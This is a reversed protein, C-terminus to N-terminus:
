PMADLCAQLHPGSAFDNFGGAFLSPDRTGPLADMFVQATSAAGDETKSVVSLSRLESGSEALLNIVERDLGSYGIVLLNLAGLASLRERLFAVHSGPCQLEDDAGVPVSLAPYYLRPPGNDFRLREIEAVADVGQQDSRRFVIEDALEFDAGLAQFTRAFTPRDDTVISPLGLSVVLRAWNVSGHLKVLSWGRGEEVYADMSDLPSRIALTRDLLTDYNLTVFIVEPLELTANVLRHYNDPNDTFRTSDSIAHFLHQLYLPVSVYQRRRDPTRADRLRERLFAELAVGNATHFRIDAAAAQAYPYQALISSFPEDTSFLGTVLPPRWGARPRM